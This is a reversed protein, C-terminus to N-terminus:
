RHSPIEDATLLGRTLLDEFSTVTEEIGTRLSTKPLRGVRSQLQADDMDINGPIQPGAVTILRAARPEVEGLVAVFEDVSVADGHLDYVAADSADALSSQVFATAVDAAYQLDVLGSFPVTYPVGLVAAKAAHTLAATMGQDRAVGYVVCPRLGISGVGYDRAYIRATHENLLKYAGYLTEPLHPSASTGIAASSSAYAIGRVTDSRARAAEFVRVTGTVNVEAGLIPDAAVFPVQLAALHIIRTIGNEDIVREIASPERLDITLHHVATWEQEDM